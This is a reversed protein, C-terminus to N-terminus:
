FDDYIRLIPELLADAEKYTFPRFSYDPELSVPINRKQSEKLVGVFREKPILGQLTKGGGWRQAYESNAPLRVGIGEVQSIHVARAQAM